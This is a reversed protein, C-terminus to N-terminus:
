DVVGDDNVISDTFTQGASPAARDFLDHVRADILRQAACNQRARDSQNRNQTQEQEAACDQPVERQCDDDADHDPSIRRDENGRGDHEPPCPSAAFAGASQAPFDRLLRCGRIRQGTLAASKVFEAQGILSPRARQACFKCTLLQNDIGSTSTRLPSGTSRASLRNFFLSSASPMRSSTRRSRAKSVGECFCRRLAFFLALRPRVFNRKLGDYAVSAITSANLRSM